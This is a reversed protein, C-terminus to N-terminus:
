RKVHSQRWVRAEKVAAQAAAQQAQAAQAERRLTAFQEAAQTESPVLVLIISVWSESVRGMNKPPTGINGGFLPRLAPDLPWCAFHRSSPTQSGFGLSWGGAQQRAADGRLNQEGRVTLRHM